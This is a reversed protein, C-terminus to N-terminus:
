SSLNYIGDGHIFDAYKIAAHRNIVEGKNACVLVETSKNKRSVKEIVISVTDGIDADEFVAFGYKCISRIELSQIMQRINKFYHQYTFTAPTIFGLLGDKKLLSLGKDYFLVYTNAQYEFSKYREELWVTEDNSLSAGYPPNGVM